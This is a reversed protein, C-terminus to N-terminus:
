VEVSISADAATFAQSLRAAYRALCQILKTDFELNDFSGLSKIITSADVYGHRDDRFPKVFRVAHGKLASRCYALFKFARSAISIRKLGVRRRIFDPGDVERDFRYQLRDEDVFSVRLFSERRDPSYSRVVRNSRELFPGDLLDNNFAIIVHLSEFLSNNTPKLSPSMPQVEYEREARAFCQQITEPSDGSEEHSWPRQVFLLTASSYPHM